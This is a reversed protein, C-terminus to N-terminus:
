GAAGLGARVRHQAKALMLPWAARPSCLTLAGAEGSDRAGVGSRVRAAGDGDARQRARGPLSWVLAYSMLSQPADLPLLALVDPSRFWQHAVNQHDRTSTLRAAVAQQGYDFREFQVGLASRTSSAKGECLATLTAPVDADVRTVHPAFRLAANLERELAAADVIWALAGVRQQWASFEIAAAPRM